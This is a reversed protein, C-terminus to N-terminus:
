LRRRRAWVIIGAAAVALPIVGIVVVGITWASAADPVALDTTLIESARVFVSVDRNVLWEVVGMSFDIDYSSNLYNTDAYLYLSSLLAIRTDKTLDEYDPSKSAAYALIQSGTATADSTDAYDTASDAPKVYSGESSTMLATYSVGSLPIDCKNIPRGAPVVMRLGNEAMTKTIEHEADLTPIVNVPTTLWRTAANSAEVVYGDGFSLQYAELLKKFNPVDDMSTTNGMTMLLRGGGALWNIMIEYEEDSLDIVPASVIIVDNAGPVIEGGLTLDQVNYNEKKLFNTFVSCNASPLENHGTLFYVNPTDDSDVYKIASTLMAEGNFAQGYSFGYQSTADEYYTTTYMEARTIARAKSDDKLAVIVSGEALSIKTTDVLRAIRTPETYPDIYDYTVRESITGYKKAMEELQVRLETNTSDQYLLYIVVDKEIDKLTEYTAEDFDTVKSPSLDISLAWNDEVMGLVVNALIVVALMIATLLLAFGGYRYKRASFLSKFFNQKEGSNTNKLKSM